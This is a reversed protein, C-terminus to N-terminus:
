CVNYLCMILYSIVDPDLPPLCLRLFSVHIAPGTHFRVVLIKRDGVRHFGPHEAIGALKLERLFRNRHGLAGLNQHADIRDRDAGGIQLNDIVARRREDLAALREVFIERRTV